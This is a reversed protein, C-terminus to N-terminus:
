KWYSEKKESKTKGKGKRIKVLRESFVLKILLFHSVAIIRTIMMVVYTM